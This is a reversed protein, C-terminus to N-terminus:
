QSDLHDIITSLQWVIVTLLVVVTVQWTKDWNVRSFRNALRRWASAKPPEPPPVPIARLRDGWQRTGSVHKAILAEAKPTFDSMVDAM